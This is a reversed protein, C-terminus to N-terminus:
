NFSSFFITTYFSTYTHISTNFKGVPGQIFMVNALAIPRYIIEQTARAEPYYTGLITIITNLQGHFELVHVNLVRYRVNSTKVTGGILKVVSYIKIDAAWQRALNTGWVLCRINTNENNNLFYEFIHGQFTGLVKIGDIPSFYGTVNSFSLNM